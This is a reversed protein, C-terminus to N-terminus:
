TLDVPATGSFTSVSIHNNSSCQITSSNFMTTMLFRVPYQGTTHIFWSRRRDLADALGGAVSVVAAPRQFLVSHTHHKWLSPCSVKGVLSRRVPERHVGTVWLSPVRHPVALADPRHPPTKQDRDHCVLAHVTPPTNSLSPRQRAHRDFLQFRECSNRRHCYKVKM